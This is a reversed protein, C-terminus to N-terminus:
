DYGNAPYGQQKRDGEGTSCLKESTEKRESLACRYSAIEDRVAFIIRDLEKPNESKGDSKKSNFDL